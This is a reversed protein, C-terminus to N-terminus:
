VNRSAYRSSIWESFGVRSFPSVGVRITRFSHPKPAWKIFSGATASYFIYGFSGTFPNRVLM